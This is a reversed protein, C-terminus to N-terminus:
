KRGTSGYGSAGRDTENIEDVVNFNVDERSRMQIQGIRDGIEYAPLEPVVHYFIISFEGRYNEDVTGISNCMILGTKYISSRSRIDFQSNYPLEIAFGCTYKIRNHGIDEKSVAVVDYCADTGFSKAPVVANPHLLKINVDKM